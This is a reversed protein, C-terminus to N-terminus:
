QGNVVAFEVAPNFALNSISTFDESTSNIGEINGAVLTGFPRLNKKSAVYPNKSSQDRAACQTQQVLRNGTHSSHRM